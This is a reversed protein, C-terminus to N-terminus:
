KDILIIVCKLLCILAYGQIDDLRLCSVRQRTILYLPPEGDKIIYECFVSSIGLRRSPYVFFSSKTSM